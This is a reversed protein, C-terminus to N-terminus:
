PNFLYNQQDNIYNLNESVIKKLDKKVRKKDKCRYYKDFFKWGNNEMGDIKKQTLFAEYLIQIQSDEACIDTESNYREIMELFEKEKVETNKFNKNESSETDPIMKGSQFKLNFSYEAGIYGPSLRVTSRIEPVDNEGSILESNHISFPKSINSLDFILFMNYDYILAGTSLDLILEATGNNDLDILTDWQFATFFSDVRFVETNKVRDTITVSGTFYDVENNEILIM